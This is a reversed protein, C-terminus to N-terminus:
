ARSGIPTTPTPHTPRTVAAQKAEWPWSTQAISTSASFTARRERPSSVIWSGPRPSSSVSCESRRLKVVEM